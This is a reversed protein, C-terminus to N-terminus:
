FDLNINALGNLQTKASADHGSHRTLGARVEMTINDSLPVRHGVGVTIERGSPTLTVDANGHLLRGDITRGTAWRLGMQGAEVRLPQSIVFSLQDGAMFVSGGTLGASFASAIVPSTSKVLGPSPAEPRAVGGYAQALFTWGGSIQSALTVGSFLAPVPPPTGFAGESALGLIQGDEMMAGAQLSLSTGDAPSMAYDVVVGHAEGETTREPLGGETTMLGKGTFAAMRLVGDGYHQGMGVTIGQEALGLFPNSFASPDATLPHSTEIARLGLPLGHSAQHSMFLHSVGMNGTVINDGETLPLVAAGGHKSMLRVTGDSLHTTELNFAALRDRRGELSLPQPTTLLGSLPQPFPAHYEDFGAMTRGEFALSFADGYAAGATIRSGALPLSAGRLSNGMTARMEGMPRLAAEMDLLGAGYIESKSFEGQNNASDVMRVLIEELSMTDFHGALVALAGTVHPAAWSTGGSTQTSYEYKNEANLEYAGAVLTPMEGPAAICYHRGAYATNTKDTVWDTPLTGCRNSSDWIELDSPNGALPAGDSDTLRNGNDDKRIQVAAVAVIRGRLEPIHYPLGAVIGPHTAGEDYEAPLTTNCRPRSMDCLIDEHSNGAAIAFLPKQGPRTIGQGIVTETMATIANTFAARVDDSDYTHTLGPVGLSFNIIQSRSGLFSVSKELLDDLDTVQADPPSLVSPMYSFMRVGGGGGPQGAWSLVEADPAIGIIDNAGGINERNRQAAAIGTVATGHGTGAFLPPIELYQYNGPSGVRLFYDDTQCNTKIRANAQDSIQSFDENNEPTSCPYQIIVDKQTQEVGVEVASSEAPLSDLANRSYALMSDPHFKDLGLDPHRHDFGSDAIGITIGEGTAGLALAYENRIARLGWQANFEDDSNRIQSAARELQAAALQDTPPPTTDTSPTNNAGGGGGGCSALVGCIALAAFLYVVPLRM